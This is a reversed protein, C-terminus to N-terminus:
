SSTIIVSYTGAQTSDLLLFPDISGNSWQYQFSSDATIFLSDACIVTDALREWFPYEGAVLSLSDEGQAGTPLFETIAQYDLVAGAIVALQDAQINGPMWTTQFDAMGSYPTQLLVSDGQCLQNPVNPDTLNQIQINNFFSGVAISQSSVSDLECFYVVNTDISVSLSLFQATTLTTDLIISISDTFSSDCNIATASSIPMSLGNPDSILFDSSDIQSCLISNNMVVILENPNASAAVTQIGGQFPHFLLATSPSFDLTFGSAAGSFNSVYMVYRHGAQVPIPPNIQPGPGSLPNTGTTGPLGSYNCSIELAQNTRIDFCSAGTLDYVAWDYDDIQVAPIIDFSILGTDQVAFEFWVGNIEGAGLCSLTGDIENPDLGEGQYTTPVAVIPQCIPLANICDQEPQLPPVQATLLSAQIVVYITIICAIYFQKM